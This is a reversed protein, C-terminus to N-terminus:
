KSIRWTMVSAAIFTLSMVAFISAMVGDDLTNVAVYATATASLTHFEVLLTSERIMM